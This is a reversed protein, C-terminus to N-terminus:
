RSRTPAARSTCRASASRSAGIPRTPRGDRSGLTAAVSARERELATVRSRTAALEADAGDCRRRFCMSSSCRARSRAALAEDARRLRDAEDSSEAGSAPLAFGCFAAVAAVM